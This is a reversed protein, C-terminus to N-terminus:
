DILPLWEGNQYRRITAEVEAQTGMIFGGHVVKGERLSKGSLFIFHSEDLAEIFIESDRDETQFGIAQQAELPIVDDGSSIRIKGRLVYLMGGSESLVRPSASTRPKMQFEYFSFPAPLAASSETGAMKGLHVRVRAQSNPKWEKVQASEVLFSTPPAQRDKSGLNLTVQIGETVSGLQPVEEMIMGSGAILGLIGGPGIKVRKGQHDRGLLGGSSDELILTLLSHGAIPRPQFARESMRFHDVNLVPDIMGGFFRENLEYYSYGDSFIKRRATLIPSFTLSM